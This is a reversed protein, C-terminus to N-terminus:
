GEDPLESASNIAVTVASVEVTLADISKCMAECVAALGARGEERHEKMEDRIANLSDIQSKEREGKASMVEILEILLATTVVAYPNSEAIGDGFHRNLATAAAHFRLELSYLLKPDVAGANM